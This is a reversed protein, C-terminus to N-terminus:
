KFSKWNRTNQACVLRQPRRLDPLDLLVIVLNLNDLSVLSYNLILILIFEQHIIKISFTTSGIREIM